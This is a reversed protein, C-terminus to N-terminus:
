VVGLMKLIGAIPLGVSCLILFLTEIGRLVRLKALDKEREKSFMHSGFEPDDYWFVCGWGNQDIYMHFAAAPVSIVGMIIFIWGTIMVDRQNIGCILIGLLMFAVYVADVTIRIRHRKM